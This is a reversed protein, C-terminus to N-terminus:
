PKSNSAACELAPELIPITKLDGSLLVVRKEYLSSNLQVFLMTSYSARIELTFRAMLIFM